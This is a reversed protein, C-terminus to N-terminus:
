KFLFINSIRRTFWYAMCTFHLSTTWDHGVRQLGMSQLRDPEEMWPFKWALTISHTAMEKELPDERGLFWVRTEQMAPLCKVMQALLSAMYFSDFFNLTGQEKPSGKCNLKTFFGGAVWSVGTWNRPWSSRSSFPYALSDQETPYKGVWPVM